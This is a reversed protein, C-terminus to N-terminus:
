CACSRICRACGACALGRGLADVEALPLHPDTAELVEAIIAPAARGPKEIVAFSVEGKKDDRRELQDLTLGTSRLFGEIRRRPASPARAKANRACRRPKGGDARRGGAGSPAAHFLRRRQCLDPRGRGSRRHGAIQLDDRARAQMRAPIEESFLEILLDPM